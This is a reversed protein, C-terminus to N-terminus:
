RLPTFILPFLYSMTSILLLLFNPPARRPALAPPLRDKERRLIPYRTETAQGRGENCRSIKLRFLM